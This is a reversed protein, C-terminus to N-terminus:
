MEIWLYWQRVIFSGTEKRTHFSIGKQFFGSTSVLFLLQWDVLIAIVNAGYGLCELHICFYGWLTGCQHVSTGAATIWVSATRGFGDRGRLAGLAEVVNGEQRWIRMEDLHQSSLHASDQFSYLAGPCSRSSYLMWGTFSLSEVGMEKESKEGRKPMM